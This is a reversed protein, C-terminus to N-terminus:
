FSSSEINKIRFASPSLWIRSAFFCLSNITPPLQQKSLWSHSSDNLFKNTTNRFTANSFPLHQDGQMWQHATNNSSRLVSKDFVARSSSSSAEPTHIPSKQHQSCQLSIMALWEESFYVKVKPFPCLSLQLRPTGRHRNEPRHRLLAALVHKKCSQLSM